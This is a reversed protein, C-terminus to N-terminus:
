EGTSRLRVEVQERWDPPLNQIELQYTRRIRDLAKEPEVTDLVTRFEALQVGRLELDFIVDSSQANVQHVQVAIVNEGPKLLQAPILFRAYEAELKAGVAKTAFVSPELVGEPLRLRRVEHGNVYVAAGDDARLSALVVGYPDDSEITLTRRFLVTRPKGDPEEGTAVEGVVAPDGYGLPAAGSKWDSDDFEANTWGVPDAAVEDCAHFKWGAGRELLATPTAAASADDSLARWEEYRKVLANAAGSRIEEEEGLLRGIMSLALAERARAQNGQRVERLSLGHMTDAFAGPDFPGPEPEMLPEEALRLDPAPGSWSVLQIGALRRDHKWVAGGHLSIALVHEGAELRGELPIRKPTWAAHGVGNSVAHLDAVVAGEQIHRRAVEVGDLFVVVGDAVQALLELHQHAKSTTFRHRLFAPGQAETDPVDRDGLSVAEMWQGPYGEIGFGGLLSDPAENWGSDDFDPETFEAALTAREPAAPLSWRWNSGAPVLIEASREEDIVAKAYAKELHALTEDRRNKRVEAEEEGRGLARYALALSQMVDPRWPITTERPLESLLGELLGAGEGAQGARILERGLRDVAVRVWQNEAGHARTASAILERGIEIAREHEGLQSYCLPYGLLLSWDAEGNLGFEHDPLMWDAEGNVGFEHDPLVTEYVAAAQAFDGVSMYSDALRCQYTLRDNPDFGETEDMRPIVPALVEIAERYRGAWQLSTGLNGYANLLKKQLERYNSGSRALEELGRVQNRSLDIAREYQGLEKYATGLYNVLSMASGFNSGWQEVYRSRIPELINVAIGPHGDKRYFAGLYNQRLLTVGEPDSAGARNSLIRELILIARDGEGLAGLVVALHTKLFTIDPRIKILQELIDCAEAHRGALHYSIALNARNLNWRQTLDGKVETERRLAEEQVEIAEETRNAYCLAIGLDGLADITKEHLRGFRAEAREVAEESLPVAKDGLGLNGFSSALVQLLQIRWEDTITKNRELELTAATLAADVTASGGKAVWRDNSSFIGKFFDVVAEAAKRNEEAAKRNKEADIRREDAVREADRALASEREARKAQVTSIATGAILCAAFLVGSAVMARNRKWFKGVRYSWEPPGAEVPEDLAHRDLDRLLASASSFRRKPDKELCRM